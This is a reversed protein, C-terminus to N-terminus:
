TAREESYIVERRVRVDGEARQAVGEEIHRYAQLCVPTRHAKEEAVDSWAVRTLGEVFRDPVVMAVAANVSIKPSGPEM